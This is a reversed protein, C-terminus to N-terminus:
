SVDDDGLECSRCLYGERGCIFPELCPQEKLVAELFKIRSELEDIRMLDAMNHLGTVENRVYVQEEESDFAAELEKTSM